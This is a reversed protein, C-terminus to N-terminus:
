LKEDTVFGAIDACYDCMAMFAKWEDPYANMGDSKKVQGNAGHIELRWHTGDLVPEYYEEQWASFNCVAFLEELKRWEAESCRHDTDTIHGNEDTGHCVIRREAATVTLRRRILPWTREEYTLEVFDDNPM